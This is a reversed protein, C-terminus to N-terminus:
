GWLPEDDSKKKMRGGVNEKHRLLIEHFMVEWRHRWGFKRYGVQIESSKKTIITTPESQKHRALAVLIPIFTNWKRYYM